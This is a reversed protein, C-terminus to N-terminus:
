RNCVFAQANGAIVALATSDLSSYDFGHGAMQGRVVGAADGQRARLNGCLEDVFTPDSLGSLKIGALRNAEAFGQYDRGTMVAEGTSAPQAPADTLTQVVMVTTGGIIGVAAVLGILNRTRRQMEIM